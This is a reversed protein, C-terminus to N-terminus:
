RTLHILRHILDMNLSNRVHAALRDYQEDLPFSGAWHAFMLGKRSALESLIAQRLRDNHFLGHIYTGLINGDQSLCGDFAACPQLSRETL